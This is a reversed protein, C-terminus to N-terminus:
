SRERFSNAPAECCGRSESLYARSRQQVVDYLKCGPMAEVRPGRDRERLYAQYVARTRVDLGGLTSVWDAPMNRLGCVTHLCHRGVLLRTLIQSPVRTHM